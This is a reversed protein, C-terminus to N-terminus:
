SICQEISKMRTRINEQDIMDLLIATSKLYLHPWHQCGVHHFLPQVIIRVLYSHIQCIEHVVHM